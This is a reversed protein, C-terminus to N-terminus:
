LCKFLLNLGLERIKEDEATTGPLRERRSTNVVQEGDRRGSRCTGSWNSPCGYAAAALQGRCWGGAQERESNTNTIIQRALWTPYCISRAFSNDCRLFM